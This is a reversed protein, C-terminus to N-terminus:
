FSISNCFVPPSRVLRSSRQCAPNSPPQRLPRPYLPPPSSRDELAVRSAPRQRHYPLHGRTPQRLLPWLTRLASLTTPRSAHWSRTWHQMRQLRQQPLQTRELRRQLPRFQRVQLWAHMNDHMM